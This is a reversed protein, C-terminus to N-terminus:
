MIMISFKGTATQKNAKQSNLLMKNKDLSVQLLIKRNIQQM